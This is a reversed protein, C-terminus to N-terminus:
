KEEPEVIWPTESYKKTFALFEREPIPRSFFYGQIYNVGLGTMTDYQERTEVGESV